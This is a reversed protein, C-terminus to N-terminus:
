AKKIGARALAKRAAIVRRICEAKGVNIRREPEPNLEDYLKLAEREIELAEVKSRM